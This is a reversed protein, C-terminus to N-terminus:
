GLFDFQQVRREVIQTREFNRTNVPTEDAVVIPRGFMEAIGEFVNGFNKLHDVVTGSAILWRNTKVMEGSDEDRTWEYVTRMLANLYLKKSRATPKGKDDLLQVVAYYVDVAEHDDDAAKSLKLDRFLADKSPITFRDGKLLHDPGLNRLLLVPKKSLDVREDTKAAKALAAEFTVDVSPATPAATAASKTKKAM